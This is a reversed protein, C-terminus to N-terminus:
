IKDIRIARMGAATAAVVGPDGDEFVLCKDPAVGLAKAAALFPDPHPKGHPTEGACITVEVYASIGLVTLTKAVSEREGGSVVAIRHKGAHQVLHHLVFPIPAVQEIYEDVFLRHRMEAFEVPDMSTGYRRNMEKVVDVVPWGALEMIMAPDISVGFRNAVDVYTQQHAPMNDALTGDCDYLFAEYDGAACEVLKNYKVKNKADM